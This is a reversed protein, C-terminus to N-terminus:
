MVSCTKSRSNLYLITDSTPRMRSVPRIQNLYQKDTLGATLGATTRPRSTKPRDPEHVHDWTRTEETDLLSKCRLASLVKTPTDYKEDILAYSLLAGSQCGVVVTRDDPGMSVCTVNESLDLHAIRECDAVRIVYICAESAYAVARGGLLLGRPRQDSKQLRKMYFGTGMNFMNSEHDICFSVDNSFIVQNLPTGPTVFDELVQCVVGSCIDFILFGLCYDYGTRRRRDDASVIDPENTFLVIITYSNNPVPRVHLMRSIKVVDKLQEPGYTSMKTSKISVACIYPSVYNASLTDYDDAALLVLYKDKETVFPESLVFRLTQQVTYQEFTGESLVFMSIQFPSKYADTEQAVSIISNGKHLPTSFAPGSGFEYIIKREPLYWIKNLGKPHKTPATTVFIYKGDSSPSFSVVPSPHTLLDVIKGTILNLMGLEDSNSCRVYALDRSSSFKIEEVPATLRDLGTVHGIADGLGWVQVANSGELHTIVQGRDRPVMLDSIMGVPAQLTTLLRGNASHWVYITRFLTGIVFKSDASFAANAFDISKYHSRPLKFEQPIDRPREIHCVVRETSVHYVVLNNHGKILLLEQNNSMSLSDLQDQVFHELIFKYMMEVKGDKLHIVYVKNEQGNILFARLVNARFVIQKPRLDFSAECMKEMTIMDFSLLRDGSNCFVYRSDPTIECINAKGELGKVDSFRFTLLNAVCLFSTDASVICCMQTDCLAVKELKYKEKPKLQIHTLPIFQGLFAGSASDHMKIAKKTDDDVIVFHNGSPTVMIRGASTLVEACKEGTLLDYVEVYPQHSDKALIFRSDQGALAFTEPNGKCILTHKLPSGPMQHYPFIPILACQKLGNTDCDHILRRINSYTNGYSLLRGTLEAAMNNLNKNLNTYAARLAKEVLTAEVGPNLMFDSLVSDLSLAKAKNYLWEYSFLVHENFEELRGALCLQRPVQDFKRKNYRPPSDESLVLPQAPVYRNAPVESVKGEQEIVYTKPGINWVGLFYDALNSHITRKTIDDMYRQITIQSFISHSWTYVTMGECVHHALFPQLDRKLRLWCISPLRRIVSYQGGFVENLVDDDISLVDEMECDSLGTKSVTMYALCHSTLQKGHKAELNDFLAQVAEAVTSPLALSPVAQDSRWQRVQYYILWVYMPSPKREFVEELVAKQHGQICKKDKSLWAHFLNFCQGVWLPQLYIINTKERATDRKLTEMTSSSQSVSVVIKVNAELNPPFWSLGYHENELHHIDDLLVLLTIDKPIKKLLTLWYQQVERFDVPIDVPSKDLLCSIQLSLSRLLQCIDESLSTKGIYRVAIICESCFWDAAQFFCVCVCFLQM